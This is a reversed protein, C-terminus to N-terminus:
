RSQSDGRSIRSSAALSLQSTWASVVLRDGLTLRYSDPCSGTASLTSRHGKRKAKRKLKQSTSGRRGYLSCRTHCMTVVSARPRRLTTVRSIPGSFASRTSNQSKTTRETLFSAPRFAAYATCRSRSPPARWLLHPFTIFRSAACIWRCSRVLFDVGIRCSM